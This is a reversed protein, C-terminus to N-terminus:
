LWVKILPDPYAPYYITCLTTPLNRSLAAKLVRQYDREFKEAITALRQLVEAVSRAPERLFSSQGLADNGGISIILHSADIPLRDLQPLVDGTISGDVALLTAQWDKPLRQQVQTIVAPGDGVYAANDFISDGLLIVHSM